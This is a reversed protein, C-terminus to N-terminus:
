ELSVLYEAIADLDSDPLLALNSRIRGMGGSSLKDYGYAAGFRLALALDAASQYRGRVVLGRLSPVRGEGAPHPGGALLRDTEPVMLRNRPTHCEGCHGPGQVLYAGRNWRAGRGPEPAFAATGLALRKWLGIGRRVVSPLPLQVSRRPSSVAPLSMLYARLDLVDRTAMLRYSGYPFAPVYHRGEPSIGRTVANVFDIASWRGLGTELDPTLNGPHLTGVPTRLPAGGSPLKPDRGSQEPPAHCALCSAANYLTRGNVLNPQHPPLASAPLPVPATAAWFAAGAALALLGAVLARGHMRRRM